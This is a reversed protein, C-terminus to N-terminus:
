EAPVKYRFGVEAEAALPLGEAWPPAETMIRQLMDAVTDIVPEADEVLLEDHTHGIV